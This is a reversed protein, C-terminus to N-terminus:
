FLFCIGISYYRRHDLQFRSYLPMRRYDLRLRTLSGVECIINIYGQMNVM